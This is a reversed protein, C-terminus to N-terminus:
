GFKGSGGFPEAPPALPNAAGRPSLPRQVTWPAAETTVNGGSPRPKTQEDYQALSSARPSLTSPQLASAGPKHSPFAGAFSNTATGGPPSVDYRDNYQSM